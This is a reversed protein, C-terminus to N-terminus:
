VCAVNDQQNFYDELQRKIHRNIIPVEARDGNNMGFTSNMDEWVKRRLVSMLPQYNINKQVKHVLDHNDFINKWLMGYIKHVSEQNPLMTRTGNEKLDYYVYSVIKKDYESKIKGNDDLLVVREIVPEKIIDHKKLFNIYSKFTGRPVGIAKALEEQVPVVKGEMIVRLISEIIDIDKKGIDCNLITYLNNLPKLYYYTKGNKTAEHIVYALRLRELYKQKHAKFTGYTVKLKDCLEQISYKEM